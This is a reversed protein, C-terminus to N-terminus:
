VWNKSEHWRRLVVDSPQGGRIPSDCLRLEARSAYFGRLVEDEDRSAGYLAFDHAAGADDENARRSTLEDFRSARNTTGRVNKPVDFFVREDDRCDADYVVQADTLLHLYKQDSKRFVCVSVSLLAGFDDVLPWASALAAPRLRGTADFDRLAMCEYPGADADEKRVDCLGGTVREDGHKIEM